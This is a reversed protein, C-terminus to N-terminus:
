CAFVKRVVEIVQQGDFPKVVFSLAGAELAELVLRRQGMASCMIIKADPDIKKILKLANLGNMDPMTIDMTVLDPKFQQYKIVAENGTTAEAVVEYGAEIFIKSLILRMVAADDVVM